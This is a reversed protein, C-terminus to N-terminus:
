LTTPSNIKSYYIDFVLSPRLLYTSFFNHHYMPVKITSIYDMAHDIFFTTWPLCM